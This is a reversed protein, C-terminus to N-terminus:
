LSFQVRGVCMCRNVDGWGWSKYTQISYKVLTRYKLTLTKTDRAFEIDVTVNSKMGKQTVIRHVADDVKRLVPGLHMIPTSVKFIKRSISRRGASLLRILNTSPSGERIIM